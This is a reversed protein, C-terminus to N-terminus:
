GTYPDRAPERRTTTVVQNAKQQQVWISAANGASTGGAKIKAALENADRIARSIDRQQQELVDLQAQRSM